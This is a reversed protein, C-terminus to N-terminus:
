FLFPLVKVYYLVREFRMWKVETLPTKEKSHILFTQNRLLDIFKLFISINKLKEIQYNFEEMKGCIELSDLALHFPMRKIPEDALM